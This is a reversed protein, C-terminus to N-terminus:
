DASTKKSSKAARKKACPFRCVVSVGRRPASTIKLTGGILNARYDMVQLGIGDSLKARSKMLGRGNDEVKLVCERDGLHQLSISIQTPSGHKIANNVAEQAIRYIHTEKESDGVDIGPDITFSCLTRHNIRITDALIQLVGGLGRNKVAAPSMSHSMRRVEQIADQILARIRGARARHPGTLDNELSEMMSAVGTMTQGVGDHLNHGIRAQEQESIKLLERQLRNRETLDAGTVIIRVLTGDPLRTSISSLSFTLEQGSKSFLIAERPPNTGGKLLVQLREISRLKEEPDMIGVAWPTRGVLEKRSFGLLRVTADNVHVMNGQRDLLVIIVSTHNVLTKNFELERLYKEEAIKRETIDQFTGILRVVRRGERVPSGQSRAWFTRGKASIVQVELDYSKGKKIATEVAARIQPRAEPVYYDIATSLDPTEGPEVDFIRCTEPSWFLKHRKLDLEWGGIKAIEGTRSLLDATHILDLEVKKRENIDTLLALAGLYNGDTDMIPNTSVFAWLYSGDKKLYKFEFRESVGRRRRRLISGLKPQDETGLFESLPRGIIEEPEYGLMEAMRPNVYDTISEANITWIGEQATQVIRRYREESDRLASKIRKSRSVDHMVGALSTVQGSLGLLPSVSVEVYKLNDGILFVDEWSRPTRTRVAEQCKKLAISKSPDPIADQITRGVVQGREIGAAQLYANNVSAFRFVGKPEVVIQFLIVGVNEFFAPCIPRDIGASSPSFSASVPDGAERKKRSTVKKKQPRSKKM